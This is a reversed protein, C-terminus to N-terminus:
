SVGDNLTSEYTTTQIIFLDELKKIVARIHEANNRYGKDHATQINSNIAVCLVDTITRVGNNNPLEDKM